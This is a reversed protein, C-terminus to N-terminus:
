VVQCNKGSLSAAGLSCITELNGVISYGGDASAREFLSLQPPSTPLYTPSRWDNGNNDQALMVFHHICSLDGEYEYSCERTAPIM